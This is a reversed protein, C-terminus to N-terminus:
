EGSRTNSLTGPHYRIESFTVSCSPGRPAQTLFGVQPSDLPGLSFYRVFHWFRGDLSYHFAVTTPTVALRLYVDHGDVIVSNCDDSRGRTVVSVIMPEQRPSYEFCLKAWLDDHAYIHLVGADFDSAFDVHVKASLLFSGDPPTFLASPASRLASESSPDHFWDTMEGATVHLQGDETVNWAVPDNKWTLEGPIGPLEFSTM